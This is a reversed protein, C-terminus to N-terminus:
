WTNGCKMINWDLRHVLGWGLVKCYFLKNSRCCLLVLLRGDNVKWKHQVMGRFEKDQWMLIEWTALRYNLSIKGEWSMCGWNGNDKM